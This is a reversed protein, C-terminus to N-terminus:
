LTQDFGSDARRLEALEVDDGFLAALALDRLPGAAAELGEREEQLSEGCGDGRVAERGRGRALGLDRGRHTGAEKRRVFIEEERPEEDQGFHFSPDEVRRRFPGPRGKEEELPAPDFRSRAAIPASGPEASHVAAAGPGGGRSFKVLLGSM